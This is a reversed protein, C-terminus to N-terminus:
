GNTRENTRGDNGEDTGKLNELNCTRAGNILGGILILSNLIFTKKLCIDLFFCRFLVQIITVNGSYANVPM